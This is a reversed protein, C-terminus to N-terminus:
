LKRLANFLFVSILSMLLISAILGRGSYVEPISYQMILMMGMAFFMVYGIRKLPNLFARFMRLDFSDGIMFILIAIGSLSFCMAWFVFYTMESFGAQSMKLLLGLLIAISLLVTELMAVWILARFKNDKNKM